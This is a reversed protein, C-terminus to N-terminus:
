SDALLGYTELHSLLTNFKTTIDPLTGDANAITAQQIVPTEGFFGLKQSASTGIQTGVSTGLIIDGAIYFDKWARGSEGIDYTNDNDPNLQRINATGTLTLSNFTPSDSVTLGTVGQTTSLTIYDFTPHDSTTLGTVGQSTDLTLYNFNGLVGEINYIYATHWRRGSEGLNYTDNDDPNIQRGNLTGTLTMDNFTPNAATHIDQPTSLTITGDADDTVTIQDATGAVWNTLDSVTTPKGLTNTSLLRSATLKYFSYDELARSIQRFGKRVGIWDGDKPPVCLSM